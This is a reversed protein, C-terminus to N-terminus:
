VSAHNRLLTLGLICFCSALPAISKIIHHGNIVISQGMPINLGAVIEMNGFLTYFTLSPWILVLRECWFLTNVMNVQIVSAKHHTISLLLYPFGDVPFFRKREPM